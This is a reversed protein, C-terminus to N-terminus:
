LSNTPFTTYSEYSGQFSNQSVAPWFIQILAGPPTLQGTSTNAPYYHLVVRYTAASAVNTIQLDSTVYNTSPPTSNIANGPLPTIGFRISSTNALPTLALDSVLGHMLDVAATEHNSNSESTLGLPLLAVITLLAFSVIGLAIVVEVLSFAVLCNPRRSERGPIHTFCATSFGDTNGYSNTLLCRFNRM